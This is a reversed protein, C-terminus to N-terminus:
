FDSGIFIVAEKKRDFTEVLFSETMVKYVEYKGNFRYVKFKGDDFIKLNDM